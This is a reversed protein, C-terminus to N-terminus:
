KKGYKKFFREIEDIEKDSYDELRKSFMYNFDELFHHINLYDSLMKIM